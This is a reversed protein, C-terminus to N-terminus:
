EGSKPDVVRHITELLQQPGDTKLVYCTNPISRALRYLDEEPMASYLVIPTDNGRARFIKALQTGSLAPMMVDLVLVAPRHQHVLAGAGIAGPATVVALGSKELFKATSNRIEDNDEVLLVCLKKAPVEAM